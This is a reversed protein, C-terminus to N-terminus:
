LNVLDSWMCNIQVQLIQFMINRLQSEPFFRKRDKMLEYLNCDLNEFVMHLTDNERIVEKLKVASSRSSLMVYCLFLTLVTLTGLTFIYIYRLQIRLDHLLKKTQSPCCMHQACLLPDWANAPKKPWPESTMQSSGDANM